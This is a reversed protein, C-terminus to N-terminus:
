WLYKVKKKAAQKELERLRAAERAKRKRELAAQAEEEEEGKQHTGVEQDSAAEVRISKVSAKKVKLQISAALEHLPQFEEREYAQSILKSNLPQTSEHELLKVFRDKQQSFM